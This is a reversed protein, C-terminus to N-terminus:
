EKAVVDEIPAHHNRNENCLMLLSQCQGAKERGMNEIPTHYTQNEKYYSEFRWRLGKEKAVMNEIPAHYNQNENCLILLSQCQAAKETGM